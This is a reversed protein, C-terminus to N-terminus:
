WSYLLTVFYRVGIAEVHEQFAKAPVSKTFPDAQNDKSAIDAM